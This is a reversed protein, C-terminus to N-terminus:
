AAVRRTLLTLRNDQKGTRGQVHCGPVVHRAITRRLGSFAPEHASAVDSRGDKAPTVSSLGGSTEGTFPRAPVVSRALIDVTLTAKSSELGPSPLAAAVCRAVVPPIPMARATVPAPLLGWSMSTM